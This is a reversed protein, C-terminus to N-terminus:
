KLSNVFRGITITDLGDILCGVAYEVDPVNVGQKQLSENIEHFSVDVTPITLIVTSGEIRMQGGANEISDCSITLQRMRQSM